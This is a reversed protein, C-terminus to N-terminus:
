DAIENQLEQCTIQADDRQQKMDQLGSDERAEGPPFGIRVDPAPFQM